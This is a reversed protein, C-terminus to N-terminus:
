NESGLNTPNATEAGIIVGFASGILILEQLGMGWKLASNAVVIITYILTLSLRIPTSKILKNLM